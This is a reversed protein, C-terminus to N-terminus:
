YSANLGLMMARGERPDGIRQLYDV